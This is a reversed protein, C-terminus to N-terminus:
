MVRNPPELSDTSMSTRAGRRAVVVAPGSVSPTRITGCPVGSSTTSASVVTCTASIPSRRRVTSWGAMRARRRAVNSTIISFRPLVCALQRIFRMSGVPLSVPLNSGGDTPTGDPPLVSVRRVTVVRRICQSRWDCEIGNMTSASCDLPPLATDPPAVRTCADITGSRSPARSMAAATPTAASVAAHNPTTRGSIRREASRATFASGGAVTGTPGM